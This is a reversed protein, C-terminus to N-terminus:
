EMCSIMLWARSVMGGLGSPRHVARVSAGLCRHSTRLVPHGEPALLDDEADALLAAAKPYRKELTTRVLAAVMPQAAKPVQALLNRMLHVRCRQWTAGALTEAIAQKLGVHADSIVLKM